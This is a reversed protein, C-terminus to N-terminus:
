VDREPTVMLCRVSFNDFCFMSLKELHEFHPITSVSRVLGELSIYPQKLLGRNLNLGPVDDFELASM